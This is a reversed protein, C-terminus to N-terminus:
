LYSQLNRIVTAASEDTLSALWANISQGQWDTSIGAVLCLSPTVFDAPVMLEGILMVIEACQESNADFSM